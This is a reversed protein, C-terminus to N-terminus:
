KDAETKFRALAAEFEQKQDGEAKRAAETELEVAKAADGRAAHVHALTDVYNPNRQSLEVARQACKLALDLDPNEFGGKPDVMSWAIVNMVADDDKATESLKRGVEIAAPYDKKRLLLRFKMALLADTSEPNKKAHEDVVALAKDWDEAKFAASLEKNLEQEVARAAAEKKVDLKGEKHKALTADLQMPHGIWAIRGEGDVLFATPIGNAGAAKMWTIAMPGTRESGGDLAVRYNMKDGMKEVFAKVAAPDNEWCNQGIFTIEKYQEQLKSLHPISQVCPGCWTAWFEVVYSKGKELEKVPEGKVYEGQDLKPAPDGVNLTVKKEEQAVAFSACLLSVVVAFTPISRQM